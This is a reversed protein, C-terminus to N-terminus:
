CKHGARGHAGGEDRLRIEGRKGRWIAWVVVSPVALYIVGRNLMEVPGSMLFGVGWLALLGVCTSMVLVGVRRDHWRAVVLCMVGLTIWVISWLWEPALLEATHQFLARENWPLYASGRTVMLLGLLVYVGGDTLMFSRFDYWAGLAEGGRCM